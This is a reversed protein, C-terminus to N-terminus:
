FRRGERVDIALYDPVGEMLRRFARFLYAADHPGPSAEPHYQVSFCPQDLFQIGEPTGDNLNVHTLRVHGFRPNDVVPALHRASWFRLDTQDAEEWAAAVDAGGSLEPVLSGLSTLDLGYNHNQATVEVMGSLLNMVPQNGGHHGYPLKGVMAGAARCIMQHGLCIGFLPVRGLLEEACAMPEPLERPDGPGNSLFVGDPGLALIDAAPTDWPVIHVDMGAAVLGDLIGRKEGCDLAVVHLPRDDDSPEAAVDYAEDCSVDAVWNHSSISPAMRVRAVLSAPDLDTTSIACRMTGAERVHLTLERTDVGEIGVVGSTALFDPLSRESAWNNPTACMDRVVVAALAPADAQMAAASVGYNGIQPYTFLVVQGAYSPDTIVEQYGSLSTNFVLEGMAEGVAGVSRGVLCTGDELAILAKTTDGAFLSNV